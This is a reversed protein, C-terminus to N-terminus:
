QYLEVYGCRKLDALDEAVYVDLLAPTKTMKRIDDFLEDIKRPEVSLAILTYVQRLSMPLNCEELAVRAKATSRVLTAKM